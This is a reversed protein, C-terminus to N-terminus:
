ATFNTLPQDNKCPSTTRSPRSAGTSLVLAAANTAFVFRVVFLYRNTGPPYRTLNITVKCHPHPPDPWFQSHVLFPWAQSHLHARVSSSTLNYSTCIHWQRYYFLGFAQQETVASKSAETHGINYLCPCISTNCLVKRKQIFAAEERPRSRTHCWGILCSPMAGRFFVMWQKHYEELPLGYSTSWTEGDNV